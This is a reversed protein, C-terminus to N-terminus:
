FFIINLPEKKDIIGVLKSEDNWVYNNKNKFYVKGNFSFEDLIIEDHNDNNPIIMNPKSPKKQKRPKKINSKLMINLLYILLDKYSIILKKIM